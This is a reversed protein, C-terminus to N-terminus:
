RSLAQAKRPKRDRRRETLRRELSKVIAGQLNRCKVSLVNYM